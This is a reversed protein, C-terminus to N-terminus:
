FAWICPMYKQEEWTVQHVWVSYYCQHNYYRRPAWILRQTESYLSRKSWFCSPWSAKFCSLVSHPVPWQLCLMWVTGMKGWTVILKVLGLGIIGTDFKRWKHSTKTWQESGCIGLPVKFLPEVTSEKTM